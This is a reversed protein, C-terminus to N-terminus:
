FVRVVGDVKRISVEQVEALMEVAEERTKCDLSKLYAERSGYVKENQDFLKGAKEIKAAAILADLQSFM